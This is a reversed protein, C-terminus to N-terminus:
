EIRRVNKGDAKFNITELIKFLTKFRMLNRVGQRSERVEKRIEATTTRLYVKRKRQILCSTQKL